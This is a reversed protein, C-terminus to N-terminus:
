VKKLIKVIGKEADVEILDGDKLVKTAIKTGVICPIKLERSVIAAHSTLGGIDTVISSAKKMIVVFDPTTHVAVLIEGKKFTKFTKQSQVIRVRGRVKGPYAPIGKFFPHVRKLKQKLIYKKRLRKIKKGEYIKIKGKEAYIAYEKKRKRIIEKNIKKDEILREIEKPTLFILENYTFGMRKGIFNFFPMLKLSSKAITEMLDNLLLGIEKLITIFPAIKKSQKLRLYKKVRKRLKESINGETLAEKLQFIVDKETLPTGLMARIKIWKFEETYKKIKEEIKLDKIKEKIEKFSYNKFINKLKKDNEIKSALKLLKYEAKGYGTLKEPTILEPIIVSLEKGYAEIKPSLAKTLQSVLYEEVFHDIMFGQRMKVNIECYRRFLVKLKRKSCKEFDINSLNNSFDILIKAERRINKIIKRITNFKRAVKKEIKEKANKLEDKPLFATQQIYLYKSFKFNIQFIPFFNRCYAEAFLWTNFPPVRGAFIKIWNKNM